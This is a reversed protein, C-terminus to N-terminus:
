YFFLTTLNWFIIVVIAGAVSLALAQRAERNREFREANMTMQRQALRWAMAQHASPGPLSSMEFRLAPMLRHGYRRDCGGHLHHIGHGRCVNCSDEEHDRGGNEGVHRYCRCPLTARAPGEMTREGVRGIRKYPTFASTPPTPGCPAEFSKKSIPWGSVRSRSHEVGCHARAAGAACLQWRSQPWGDLVPRCLESAFAPDPCARIGTANFVAVGDPQALPWACHRGCLKAPPCPGRPLL